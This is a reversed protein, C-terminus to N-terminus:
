KFVYLERRNIRRVTLSIYRLGEKAIFSLAEKCPGYVDLLVIETGEEQDLCIFNNSDSGFSNIFFFYAEHNFIRAEYEIVNNRKGIFSFNNVTIGIEEVLERSLAQEYGEGKSIGGGPLDLMGCYPGRKKRITVISDQTSIIGYVGKYFEQRM